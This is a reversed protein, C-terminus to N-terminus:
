FFYLFVNQVGYVALTQYVINGLIVPVIFRRVPIGLIGFPLLYAETPFPVFAAYAFVFVPLWRSHNEYMHVIHAYTSPYNKTVYDSSFRGLYFSVLDAMVTGAVLTAIIIPMSLGGAIFIPVFTAAPIPILANLGAIIAVILVGLYGFTAVLERAVDSQEIARAAYFSAITLTIFICLFLLAHILKRPNFHARM